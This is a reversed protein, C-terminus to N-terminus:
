ASPCTSAISTPTRYALSKAFAWRTPNLNSPDDDPQKPALEFYESAPEPTTHIFASSFDTQTKVFICSTSATLLRSVTTKLDGPHSRVNNIVGQLSLKAADVQQDYLPDNFISRLDTKVEASVAHSSRLARTANGYVHNLAALVADVYAV